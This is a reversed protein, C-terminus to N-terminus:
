SNKVIERLASILCNVEELTNFYGFSVRVTGGPFSGITRHALPSCHLGTRTVIRYRRDLLMGIKAPNMGNINFSIVSIRGQRGAPLSEKNTLGYVKINKIKKLGELFYDTLKERHERIRKVSTKVIFQIGKELGVLGVDNLTGTEYRDPLFEPQIELESKSGTGGEKLPVLNIGEKIYLAGTGTPGLLSKHGSFALLDINMAKVDVPITGASQAADVLYVVRHKKAIEGVEAVPMTTGVVNSAHLLVILKTNNRIEREIDKPELEGSRSCKVISIKIKLRQELNRLPRIVSNHEMSSIIVHDNENLIGKIALNLAETANLTFVIQNPNKVNILGALLKRTDAVPQDVTTSSQFGERGSSARGREFFKEIAILVNKPKPWSTAANNFYIEKKM